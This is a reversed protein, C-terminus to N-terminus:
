TLDVAGVTSPSGALLHQVKRRDWRVGGKECDSPISGLIEFGTLARYSRSPRTVAPKWLPLDGRNKETLEAQDNMRKMIVQLEEIKEPPANKTIVVYRPFDPDFEVTLSSYVTQYDLGLLNSVTMAITQPDDVYRLDAGLEYVETNGALLHGWRDYISGREPYITKHVYTYYEEAKESILKASDSTQIRIMWIFIFLGCARAELMYLSFPLSKNQNM